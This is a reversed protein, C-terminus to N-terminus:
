GETGEDGIQAAKLVEINIRGSAIPTFISIVDRPSLIMELGMLHLRPNRGNVFLPLSDYIKGQADLFEKRLAPYQMAVREILQQMTLPEKSEIEIAKEGVVDRLSSYFEVKM